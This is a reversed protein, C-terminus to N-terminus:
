LYLGGDGGSRRGVVSIRLLRLRFIPNQGNVLVGALAEFCRALMRRTNAEIIVHFRSLCPCSCHGSERRIRTIEGLSSRVYDYTDLDAIDLKIAFFSSSIGMM